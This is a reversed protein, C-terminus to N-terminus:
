QLDEWNVTNPRSAFPDYLRTRASVSRNTGNPTPYVVTATVQYLDVLSDDLTIELVYAFRDDLPGQLPGEVALRNPGILDVRTLVEDLWQAALRMDHSRQVANASQGTNAAIVAAFAALIVGAILCELLTFGQARCRKASDLHCSPTFFVRSM